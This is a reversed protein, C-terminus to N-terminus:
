WEAVGSVAVCVGLTACLAVCLPVSDCMGTALVASPNPPQPLRGPPQLPPLM